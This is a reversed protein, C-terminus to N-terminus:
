LWDELTLIPNSLRSQFDAPGQTDAAEREGQRSSSFFAPPPCGQRGAEWFLHVLSCSNHIFPTLPLNTNPRPSSILPLSCKTYGRRVSVATLTEAAYMFEGTEGGNDVTKNTLQTHILEYDCKLPQEASTQRCTYTQTCIYLQTHLPTCTNAHMWLWVWGLHQRPLLSVSTFSHGPEASPNHSLLIGANRGM